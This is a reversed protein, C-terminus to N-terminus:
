KSKPCEDNEQFCHGRKEDPCEEILESDVICKTDFGIIERRQQPTQPKQCYALIAKAENYYM